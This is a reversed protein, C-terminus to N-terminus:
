HEQELHKHNHTHTRGRRVKQAPTAAIEELDRLLKEASLHNPGSIRDTTIKLSGDALVEVDIEDAM